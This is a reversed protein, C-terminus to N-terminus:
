KQKLTDKVNTTVVLNRRLADVHKMKNRYGIFLMYPITKLLNRFHFQEMYMSVHMQIVCPKLISLVTLIHKLKWFSM